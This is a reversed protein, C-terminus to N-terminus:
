IRDHLIEMAKKLIVEPKQPKALYGKAGLSLAQIVYERQVAQSYVIAPIPKERARLQNLIDFGNVGQMYIDLVALDFSKTQIAQAFKAGSEFVETTVGVSQFSQALIKRVVEDDDVIAINLLSGDSDLSGDEGSEMGFRIDVSGTTDDDQGALISDAIIETADGAAQGKGVISGLASTLDKLVKVGIYEVHGDIFDNMYDDLSLIKVNRSQIRNDALVTDLLLELNIGDVFSLQLNTMMVIVKPDKIKYNDIMESIKYKLLSIKERNLGQAVEVFIVNGNHHIELVCPTTDMSLNARIIKGIAEFFVDFKIPKSFYKVVGYQVLSSIQAREMEPGAIIVPIKKANPDSMKRELLDMVEEFSEEIDIIILDPIVRVMKSFADLRGDAIEASVNESSLKEKVFERFMPAANIILVQKKRANADM